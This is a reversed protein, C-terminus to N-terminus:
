TGWGILKVKAQLTYLVSGDGAITAALTDTQGVHRGRWPPTFAITWSCSAGPPLTGGCTVTEFVLGFAGTEASVGAGSVIATDSSNNTLTVTQYATTGVQVRGFNIHNKASLTLPESTAAQASASSGDLLALSLAVLIWRRSFITRTM